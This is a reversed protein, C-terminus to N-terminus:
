HKYQVRNNKYIITRTQLKFGNIRYPLTQSGLNLRQVNPLDISISSSLLSNLPKIDRNNSSYRMLALSVFEGQSIKSKITIAM